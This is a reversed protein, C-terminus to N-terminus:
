QDYLWQLMADQAAQGRMANAHNILFVVAYYKGSAAQVFGAISRVDNLTGTKIHAQGSVTQTRLRKRMTGDVGALPLSSVFEPMTASQFAAALMRALMGATLRDIRSLGAGNEIILDGTELGKSGLWAKVANSGSEPTAPSGSMEAGLTLLVQRAMVNNSFKNIDRIVEPLAPSQWEALLRAEQPAAGMSVKGNFVGGVDAWLQRFVAGFYDTGTLKYPHVYWTKDGCATPYTGGFDIAGPKISLQMRAQWDDCAGATQRLTALAMGALPPDIMVNVRGSAQDPMFRLTLAKYNLLLADPVANYPKLPDGDFQAPSYPIAAFASRDLVVDGRIERIGQARIQRLFLWFNEFVLKPDGSGKFVLDGNLVGDVVPGTAYAQTKWVYSPGLLELAADTTVLKMVSAPNFPSLPNVAVLLRKGGGIEQAVVGVSRLPIKAQTLADAVVAPLQQAIAAANLLLLSVAAFCLKKLSM